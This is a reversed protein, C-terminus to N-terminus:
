LEEPGIPTKSIVACDVYVDATSTSYICGVRVSTIVGFNDNDMGTIHFASIEVGDLWVSYEGSADVVARLEICHWSDLPMTAAANTLYIVSGGSRYGLQLAGTSTRKILAVINSGASFRMLEVSAGAADVYFYARMHVTSESITLYCSRGSAAARMAYTGHHTISPQVVPSGSVGTWNSFDNSEFGDDLLIVSAGSTFTATVDKSSNMTITTPNTSGSLDGSWGNFEWGDAPDATLTVVTDPAYSGGNPNLTVSGSGVTSITLTYQTSLEEPGIPTKSIVACDVYVDATSTSYICGVRVSTIVGFNDNDMGTIHFASIEVGDLWVSYEGSADVVARLEICHWSDLPMTAAANTLYIVSGGSRYGLQLAGTSTRKILAVINSGASFRMLEVSAGAADVYFYARMHVTSESITLYCSRGSAAARMAYTGHHTISPQVVPSGSVGTWNSFDNSEFGDDLLIVSAGSTFTATVTKDGNM